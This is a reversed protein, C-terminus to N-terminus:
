RKVNFSRVDWVKVRKKEGSKVHQLQVQNGVWLVKWEEGRYVVLHGSKVPFPRWLATIRYLDKGIRSRTHLTASVKTMGGYKAVLKKVFGRLYHQSSLYLDWGHPVRKVKVIAARAERGIWDVIGELVSEDVDRVQLIGEYYQAHPLFIPM